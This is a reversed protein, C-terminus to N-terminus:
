RGTRAVDTGGLWAHVDGEDCCICRSSRCLRFVIVPGEATDRKAYRIVRSPLDGTGSETLDPTIAEDSVLWTPLRYGTARAAINDSFDM